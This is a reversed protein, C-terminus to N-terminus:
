LITILKFFALARFIHHFVFAISDMLNMLISLLSRCIHMKNQFESISDFDIDIMDSAGVGALPPLHSSVWHVYHMLEWKGGNSPTPGDSMISM